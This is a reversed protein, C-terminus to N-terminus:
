WYFRIPRKRNHFKIKYNDSYKIVYGFTIDSFIYSDNRKNNSSTFGDLYDTFAFRYGMDLGIRFNNHFTHNVGFGVPVAFCFNSPSNGITYTNNNLTDKMNNLDKGGGAPTIETPHYHETGWMSVTLVPLNYFGAVGGFIYLNNKREKVKGTKYKKRALYFEGRLALEVINNEFQKYQEFPGNQPSLSDHGTIKGWILTGSVGFYRAFRYRIYAGASLNTAQYQFDTIKQTSNGIDTISNAAGFMVGYDLEKGTFPYDHLPPSVTHTIKKQSWEKPPSSSQAIVVIAAIILCTFLLIKKRM